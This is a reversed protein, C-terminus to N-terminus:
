KLVTFAVLKGLFGRRDTPVAAIAAVAAVKAIPEPLPLPLPAPAVTRTLGHIVGGTLDVDRLNRIVVNALPMEIPYGYCRDLSEQLDKIHAVM